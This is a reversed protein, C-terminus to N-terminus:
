ADDWQDRTSCDSGPRHALFGSCVTVATTTLRRAACFVTGCRSRVRDTGGGACPWSSPLHRREVCTGPTGHADFLLRGHEAGRIVELDQGIWDIAGPGQGALMFDYFFVTGLLSNRLRLYIAATDSKPARMSLDITDFLQGADVSSLVAASTEYVRDDAQSLITTVDRGTQDVARTPSLDHLVVVGGDRSPVAFGNPEHQVEILEMYNIYHTELAENRVDLSVRGNKDPVVSLRDVDRMEFLSAISNPFMESELVVADDHGSYITPCSGFIAKLLVVSGLAGVATALTSVMVTEVPRAGQKFTEFAAVDRLPIASIATGAPEPRGVLSDAPSPIADLVNLLYLKGEGRLTDERLAAGYEFIVVDGNTLHAKVPSSFTRPQVNADIERVDVKSFINICASFGVALLLFSALRRYM